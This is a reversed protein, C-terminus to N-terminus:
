LGTHEADKGGSNFKSLMTDADVCSAKAIAKELQDSTLHRSLFELVEERPRSGAGALMGAANAIIDFHASGEGSYLSSYLDPVKVELLLATSSFQQVFDARPPIAQKPVM